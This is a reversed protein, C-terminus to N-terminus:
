ECGWFGLGLIAAGRSNQAFFSESCAPVESSHKEREGLGSWHALSVFAGAGPQKRAIDGGQAASRAVGVRAACRRPCLLLEHEPSVGGSGQACLVPPM